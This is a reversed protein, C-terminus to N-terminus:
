ESGRSRRLIRRSRRSRRAIALTVVIHTAGNDYLEVPLESAAVGLVDLLADAEELVRVSPVPQQMRGFVLAGSEDRDIEVPVVGMGTELEIVGRQLPQALM